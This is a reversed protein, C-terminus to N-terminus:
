AKSRAAVPVPLIHIYQLSLIFKNKYASVFQLPVASACVCVCVCVCVCLVCVCV